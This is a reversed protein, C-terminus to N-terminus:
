PEWTSGTAPVASRRVKVVPAPEPEKQEATSYTMTEGCWTLEVEGCRGHRNKALIITGDHSDRSKRHLLIVQDADEEISGSERLMALTPKEGEGQRNLQALVLFPIGLERAAAKLQKCIIGVIEHRNSIKRDNLKLFSIYDVVVLKIEHRLRAAKVAVTIDQVTAGPPHFFAIPLAGVKKASEDLSDFDYQTMTQGGGRLKSLYVGSDRATIRDYMDENDMELSAFFVGRGFRANFETIQLSLATKGVSTRAALFALDGPRLGGLLTDVEFIGTVVSAEKDKKKEDVWKAVLQDAWVFDTAKRARIADVQSELYALLDDPQQSMIQESVEETIRAIRWRKAANMVRQCHHRFDYQAFGGVDILRALEVRDIGCDRIAKVSAAEDWGLGALRLSLLKSFLEGYSPTEFDTKDLGVRAAQEALAPNVLLAGVLHLESDVFPEYRSNKTNQTKVSLNRNQSV